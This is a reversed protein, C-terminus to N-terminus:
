LVWGGGYSTDNDPHMDSNSSTTRYEPFSDENDCVYDVFRRTYFEAANRAENQLKSLEDLTAPESTQSFRKYVGNNEVEFMAWPLYDDITFWVCMPKIYDTWLTKYAANAAEDMTDAELLGQVKEYLNTGMYNQVHIEQAKEIFQVLKDDDVNGKINTKKKLENATIFM